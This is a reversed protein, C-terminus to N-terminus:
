HLYLMETWSPVPCPIMSHVLTKFLCSFEVLLCATLLYISSLEKQETQSFCHFPTKQKTTALSTTSLSGFRQLSM